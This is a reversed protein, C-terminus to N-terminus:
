DNGSPSGEAGETYRVSPAPTDWGNELTNWRDKLEAEDEENRFRRSPEDVVAAVFLSDIDQGFM